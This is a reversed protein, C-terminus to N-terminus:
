VKKILVPELYTKIDIQRIIGSTSVKCISDYGKFSGFTSLQAKMEEALKRTFFM